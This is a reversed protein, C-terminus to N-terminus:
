SRVVYGLLRLAMLPDARSQHEFLLYLYSPREACRVGFLLDSQTGRLRESIFSAPLLRLSTFDIRRAVSDPLVVRLQAAAREVNGFVAKFLADHPQRADSM